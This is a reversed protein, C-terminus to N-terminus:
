ACTPRAGRMTRATFRSGIMFPEVIRISSTTLNDKLVTVDKQLEGNVYLKLGAVRSSGDYTFLVHRWGSGRFPKSQIAVSHGAPPENWNSTVQAIYRNGDYEIDYGRNVNGYQLKSLLIENPGGEWYFYGGASFADTREFDGAQGCDIGGVSRFRAVRTSGQPVIASHGTHLDPQGHHGNGSRDRFPEGGTGEFTWHGILWRQEEATLAEAPNRGRLGLM